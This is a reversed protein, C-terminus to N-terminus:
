SCSPFISQWVFQRLKSRLLIARLRKVCSLMIPVVRSKFSKLRSPLNIWISHIKMILSYCILGCMHPFVHFRLRELFLHVPFITFTQFPSTIFQLFLGTQVLSRSYKFFIRSIMKNPFLLFIITFYNNGSLAKRTVTTHFLVVYLLVRDHNKCYFYFKKRWIM